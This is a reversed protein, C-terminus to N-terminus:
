NCTNASKKNLVKMLILILSFLSFIFPMAMAAKINLNESVQGFLWHAIILSISISTVVAAIMSNISAPYKENLLSIAAPFFASMTLGCCALAFPHVTFGILLCILTSSLSSILIRRSSTKINFFSLALRGSLLMLFFFILYVSSKQTSFQHVETLYLTMRSSIIIDSAIYFGFFFGEYLYKKLPERREKKGINKVKNLKVPISYIVTFLALASIGYFLAPWSLNFYSFGGLLFPTLLAALCYLSHLTSLTQREKGPKSGAIALLNFCIACLGIGAGAILTGTIMIAFHGTLGALGFCFCGSFLLVLGFRNSGTISFQPLWWRSLLNVSLSAIAFLTFILSGQVKDIAFFDLIQPYVLGRSNDIFGRCIVTLYAVLLLKQKM